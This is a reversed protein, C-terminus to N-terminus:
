DGPYPSLGTTCGARNIAFKVMNNGGALTVQCSTAWGGPSAASINWTGIRMNGVMDSFICVGSGDSTSSYNHDVTFPSAQGSTGTLSVPSFNWVIRGTCSINPFGTNWKVSLQVAAVSPTTGGGNGGGNCIPGMLFPVCLLVILLAYPVTKKVIKAM